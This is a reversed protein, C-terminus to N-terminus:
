VIFNYFMIFVVSDVILLVVFGILYIIHYRGFNGTKLFILQIFFDMFLLIYIDTHYRIPLPDPEATNCLGHDAVDTCQVSIFINSM